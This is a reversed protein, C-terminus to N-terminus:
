QKQIIPIGFYFELIKTRFIYDYKTRIVESQASVFATTSQAFDFANLMGIEYRAKSFENAKQRAELTKQAAEFSKRANSVDSYAQYVNRELDLEAQKLLFDSREVNIKSQQVRTRTSLGNLIPVNLQLGYSTGDFLSIQNNFSIPANDSWRTNYGLFASLTPLYASRSVSVDKKAVDLNAAAIKIDKVAEKAKAIITEPTEGFVASTPVQYEEDAIDFNVYDDLLLTQCLNIKAILLTNEAAIIQQEQSALTAKLEYIDGAPISGAEILQNTREINQETSSKQNQLVKVQEKNFLIQLYSNAINLAIDDRMKDLKYSNAVANLKTRQLTKWNRLGNFLNLNANANASFSKFTENEFQNTAPNINAGTNVSYNANGNITPLFGGIAELKEVDSTKLDLQSQKISINNQFAYVVCEELTWKKTQGFSITSFIITVVLLSTKIKQKM